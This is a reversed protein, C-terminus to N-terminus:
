AQGNGINGDTPAQGYLVAGGVVDQGVQLILIEAAGAVQLIRLLPHEM